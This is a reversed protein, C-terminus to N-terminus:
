AQLQKADEWKVFVGGRILRAASKKSWARCMSTKVVRIEIFAKVERTVLLTCDNLSTALERNGPM